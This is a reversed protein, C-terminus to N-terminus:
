KPSEAIDRAVVARNKTGDQWGREYAAEELQEAFDDIAERETAGRGTIGEPDAYAAWDADRAPIPPHVFVTTIKM